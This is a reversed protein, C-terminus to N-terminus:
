ARTGKPGQMQGELLTIMDLRTAHRGGEFEADLWAEVIMRALGPGVVRAGLTLVNADNHQRAFRATYPESCAAARIGAVKNATIAMGIGTGCILIGSVAHGVLVARAVQEAYRPYDTRDRAFAGFDLCEIDLESLYAKINEKLEYGVHDSGVAIPRPRNAKERPM